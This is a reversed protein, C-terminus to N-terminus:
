LFAIAYEEQSPCHYKVWHFSAEDELAASMIYFTNKKQWVNIHINVVRFQALCTLWAQM